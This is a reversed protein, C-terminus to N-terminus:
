NVETLDIDIMREVAYGNSYIKFNKDQYTTVGLDVVGNSLIKM